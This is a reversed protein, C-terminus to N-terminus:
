GQEQKRGAAKMAEDLRELLERLRFVPKEEGRPFRPVYYSLLKDWRKGEALVNKFTKSKRTMLGGTTTQAGKELNRSQSESQHCTRRFKTGDKARSARERDASKKGCLFIRTEVPADAGASCLSALKAVFHINERAQALSRPKDESGFDQRFFAIYGEM